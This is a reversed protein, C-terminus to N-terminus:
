IDSERENWEYDYKININSYDLEPALVPPRDIM